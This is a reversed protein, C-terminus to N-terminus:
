PLCPSTAPWAFGEITNWSLTVCKLGREQRIATDARFSDKYDIEKGDKDPWYGERDRIAVYHATTPRSETCRTPGEM